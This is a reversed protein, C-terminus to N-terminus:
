KGGGNKHNMRQELKELRQELEKIRADKEEVKQNLGQIAALAVGDADVTAIGSSGPGVKFASYFDQAMPGVHPTGKDQKFNWQTIPLAAVKELMAKVDVSSFNEKANRDSTTVFVTASVGGVVHLKNTPTDTGIGVNGTLRFVDDGSRTWVGITSDLKAATVAGDALSATTISGDRVTDAVLGPTFNDVSFLYAAGADTAGTDDERAGIFVRGGGVAAVSNGFHDNIAPTPNTFTTLLTGNTSFLYMVGADTAGTDDGPASILVRDSGVAAFASGFFESAAPTPNTFTTLLTGNTSFLYAAGADTAGTNDYAAGILVRDSGVAAVSLGLSDSAAPTPNTFTILLTGNTNFLYAAGTDTAGTDDGYAAILVRDSGVTAVSIGFTDNIAPTPNTFTTLLTGNTSFLYAAGALTAGTNDYPTGILVRDSGVAAVSLGFQDGGAPTPNTFTTLLTGNANFLYAAGAETAGTDDAVAGILVRDSGVAAVPQGFQDNIAPTPNTFTTLLAIETVTAVKPATVSSDALDGTTVSGDALQTSTVSGAALMTSTITGAGINALAIAGTLQGAAVSGTVNGATIAYPTPTIANRPILTTFAGGGNTRVSMELWRGAGTFVGAGYDLSVTYVGGIIALASNTIASGIQAGGGAADFLAFRLDYTGNAPNTGDNLRGQYTFATGQAHLTSLQFNLTSLLALTLYAFLKNKM